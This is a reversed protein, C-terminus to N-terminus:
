FEEYIDEIGSTYDVAFGGGEGETIVIAEVDGLREALRLGEEQGIVSIATSLADATICDNAVVTVSMPMDPIAYGTRPDVIHSYREGDVTFYREYDGSTAVAKDSLSLRGLIAGGRPNKVGVHWGNGSPGDGICYIDGGADVLGDGVGGSKLIDVAEDVIYGKALASLDISMGEEAFNLAGGDTLILKDIGVKSRAEEIREEPPIMGSSGYAKWLEVLPSVTVDFAGSTLRSIEIARGIVEEADRSLPLDRGHTLKNIRSIESEEIHSSLIAELDGMKSFARDITEQSGPDDGEVQINVVTDMILRTQSAIPKDGCGSLLLPILLSTSILARIM